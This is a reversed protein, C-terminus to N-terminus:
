KKQRLLEYIREILVSYLLANTILGWMYTNGKMHEWFIVHTPFRLITFFKSFAIIVINSTSGEDVAFACFFSIMTFLLTGIFSMAFIALNYNCGADVFRLSDLGISYIKGWCIFLFRLILKNKLYKQACRGGLELDGRDRGSGGGVEKFRLRNSCCTSCVSMVLCRTRPGGGKAKPVEGWSAM